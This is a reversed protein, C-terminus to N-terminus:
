GILDMMCKSYTRGAQQRREYLRRAMERDVDEALCFADLAMEGMKFIWKLREDNSLKLFEEQDKRM